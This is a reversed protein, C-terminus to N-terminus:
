VFYGGLRVGYSRRAARTDTVAVVPPSHAGAEPTGAPFPDRTPGGVGGGPGEPAGEHTLGGWLELALAGLPFRLFTHSTGSGRLQIGSAGESAGWRPPSTMPMPCGLTPVEACLTCARPPCPRTRLGVREAGTDEETSVATSLIFGTFVRRHVGRTTFGSAARLGHSSRPHGPGSFM